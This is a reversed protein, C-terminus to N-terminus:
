ESTHQFFLIGNELTGDNIWSSPAFENSPCACALACTEPTTPATGVWQGAKCDSWCTTDVANLYEQPYKKAFNCCQETQGGGSTTFFSKLSGGLSQKCGQLTATSNNTAGGGMQSTYPSTGEATSALAMTTGLLTAITCIAIHKM